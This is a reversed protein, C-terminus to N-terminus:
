YVRRLTTHLQGGCTSERMELASTRDFAFSGCDTGELAKTIFLMMDVAELRAVVPWMRADFMGRPSAHPQQPTEGDFVRPHDYRGWM